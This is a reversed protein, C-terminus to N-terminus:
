DQFVVKVQPSSREFQLLEKTMKIAINPLSKEPVVTMKKLVPSNGLIYKIFGMELDTGHVMYFRASEIQNLSVDFLNRLDALNEVPKVADKKSLCVQLSYSSLRLEKIAPACGLVKELNCIQGLEKVANSVTSSLEIRLYMLSGGNKLTIDKVAGKISLHKLNQNSINLYNDAFNELVLRELLPCGRLLSELEEDVVTVTLPNLIKLSKFGIFSPPLKVKCRYLKLFNLEQCSFLSAPVKYYPNFYLDLNLSKVGAWSLYLIRRDICYTNNLRLESLRFETIHCKYLLSLPIQHVNSVLKDHSTSYPISRGDLILKSISVWKYRWNTSLISTRVAEKIPLRVLIDDLINGPLDDLTTSFSTEKM